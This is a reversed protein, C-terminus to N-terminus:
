RKIEACLLGGLFVRSKDPSLNIVCHSTVVNASKDEIPLKEMEGLRFEVNGYGYRRAIQEAKNVM